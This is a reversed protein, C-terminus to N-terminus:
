CACPSKYHATHTHMGPGLDVVPVDEVINGFENQKSARVTLGPMTHQWVPLMEKSFKMGVLNKMGSILIGQDQGPELEAFDDM